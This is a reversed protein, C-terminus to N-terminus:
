NGSGIYTAQTNGVSTTQGTAPVKKMDYVDNSAHGTQTDYLMVNQGKASADNATNVALYRQSQQQEQQNLNAYYLRARAEAIRRQDITARHKAYFYTGLGVLAASGLAVPITISPDVKSAGLAIGTVAGTSLGTLAANEGPTLNSCSTLLPSIILLFSLLYARM